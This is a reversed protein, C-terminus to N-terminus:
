ENNREEIYIDVDKGYLENEKIRIEGYYQLLIEGDADYVTLTGNRGQPTTVYLPRAKKATEPEVGKSCACITLLTLSIIICVARIYKRMLDGEGKFISAQEQWQM